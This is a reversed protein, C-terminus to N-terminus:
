QASYVALHKGPLWGGHYSNDEQEKVHAILSERLRHGNEGLVCFLYLPLVPDGPRIPIGWAESGGNYLVQVFILIPLCNWFFNGSANQIVAINHVLYLTGKLYCTQLLSFWVSEGVFTGSSM